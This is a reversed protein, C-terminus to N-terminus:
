VIELYEKLYKKHIVRYHPHYSSKYVESHPLPRIGHDLYDEIWVELSEPDLGIEERVILNNVVSLQEMFLNINEDDIIPSNIMSLYFAHGLEESTMLNDIIVSLSVRYYNNGIDEVQNTGQQKEYNILEEEITEIAKEITANSNMHKPGFSNQYILTLFDEIKLLPYNHYHELIVKELQKM